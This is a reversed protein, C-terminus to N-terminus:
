HKPNQMKKNKRKTLKLYFRKKTIFVIAGDEGIRFFYM